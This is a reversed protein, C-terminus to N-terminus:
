KTAVIHQETNNLSKNLKEILPKFLSDIEINSSLAEQSILMIKGILEGIYQLTIKM